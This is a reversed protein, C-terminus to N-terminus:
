QHNNLLKDKLSTAREKNSSKVYLELTKTSSHGSVAMIEYNTINPNM